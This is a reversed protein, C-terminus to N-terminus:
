HKKFHPACQDIHDKLAKCEDTEEWVPCETFLTHGVCLMLKSETCLHPPGPPDNAICREKASEVTPKFDSNTEAWEDLMASAAEKDIQGDKLLNKKELLCQQKTCDHPPPPPGHPPGHPPGGLQPGEGNEKMQFGCEEFDSPEFMHPIKCCDMPRAVGPPPGRCEPPIDPPGQSTIVM